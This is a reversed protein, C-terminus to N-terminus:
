FIVIMQIYNLKTDRYRQQTETHTRTSTHIDKSQYLQVVQERPKALKQTCFTLNLLVSMGIFVLDHVQDTAQFLSQVRLHTSSKHVGEEGPLLVQLYIWM